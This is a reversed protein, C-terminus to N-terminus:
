TFFLDIMRMWNVALEKAAHGDSIGTKLAEWLVLSFVWAATLYLMIAALFSCIAALLLLYKGQVILKELLTVM